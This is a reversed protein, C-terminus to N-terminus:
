VFFDILLWFEHLRSIQLKLKYEQILQIVIWVM